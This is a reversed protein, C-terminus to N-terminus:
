EISKWTVHEGTKLDCVLRRGIISDLEYPALGDKPCPRLLTLHERSLTTGSRLDRGARIARRQIVVTELENEEIRKVGTGLAQELEKTRNVMERWSAPNMSFRHDPGDRDNDDTFHKEIMSAGLAVAGLVTALGPTHDSLGLVIDPFMKRYLKLVNLQIFKFNELKATYNTNCQMLCLM